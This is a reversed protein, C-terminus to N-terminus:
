QDAQAGVEEVWRVETVVQGSHEVKGPASVGTLKAISALAKDEVELYRALQRHHRDLMPLEDIANPNAAKAIANRTAVAQRIADMETEISAIQRRVDSLAREHKSVLEERQGELGADKLRLEAAARMHKLYHRSITNEHRGVLKGTIVNPVGELGLAIVLQQEDPPLARNSARRELLLVATPILEHAPLDTGDAILTRVIDVLPGSATAVWQRVAREILNAWQEM